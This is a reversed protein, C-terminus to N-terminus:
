PKPASLAIPLRVLWDEVRRHNAGLDWYGVRSASYVALTSQQPTLAIVQVRVDDKFRFIASTVVVHLGDAMETQIVAGATRGIVARLAALLEAAPVAFVPAVADPRVAFGAPAVLWHNPSDPRRLTRFFGDMTPSVRGADHVSAQGAAVTQASGAPPFVAVAVCLWLFRM